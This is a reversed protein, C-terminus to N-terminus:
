RWLGRVGYWALGVWEYFAYCGDQLASASPLFQLPTLPGPTRFVTPAPTVRLGAGEFARQARVMHLADTVLVVHGIGDRRLMAASRSANEATTESTAEIWQVPTRFDDRLARAMGLAKAEIGRAPAGNGGSVLLPLGTGHQLHAAYRLRGLALHDPTDAGGYEAARLRSGAALVVIASPGAAPRSLDFPQTRAELPRLLLGAGFDTSLAYLACAAALAVRPAVRPWRRRGAYGAAMLVFLSAPPLLLVHTLVSLTLSLLEPM